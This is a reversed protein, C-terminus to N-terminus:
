RSGAAAQDEPNHPPSAVQGKDDPSVHAKNTLQCKNHYPHDAEGEHTAHDAKEGSYDAFLRPHDLVREVHVGPVSGEATEAETRHSAAEETEAPGDPSPILPKVPNPFHFVLQPLFPLPPGRGGARAM